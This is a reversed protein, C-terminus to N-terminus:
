PRCNSRVSSWCPHRKLAPAASCGARDSAPAWLSPRRWTTSTKSAKPWPLVVSGSREAYANVANMIEAVKPGPRHQVLPLDLKIIDPRLLPMFALSLDNAGVDDLAIRWGASRLRRVTALLEAPRAALARETIELMLKLEGPASEAISRLEELKTV